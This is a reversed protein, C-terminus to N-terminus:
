KLSVFGQQVKGIGSKVIIQGWVTFSVELQSAFNVCIRLLTFLKNQKNAFGNEGQL